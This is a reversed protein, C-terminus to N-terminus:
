VGGVYVIKNEEDIDISFQGHKSLVTISDTNRSQREALENLFNRFRQIDNEYFNSQLHGESARMLCEFMSLDLTIHSKKGDSTKVTLVVARQLWNVSHSLLDDSESLEWKQELSGISIDQPKITGALIGGNSMSRGFAPDLLELSASTRGPIRIGQIHRLGAVIKNKLKSEEEKELGLIASTFVQGYRFGLRLMSTELDGIGDFFARRRLVRVIKSTLESEQAREKKSAASILLDDVGQAADLIVYDRDRGFKIYFELDLEHSPFVDAENLLKEDLSRLAFQGPDIRKLGMLTKISSLQEDSLNEPKEFLLNYFIFQRAWGAKNKHKHVDKCSLGGTLLYATIMLMERITIVMDARELTKLLLNLNSVRTSSLPTKEHLMSHNFFMPCRDRSECSECVKWRRGDLWDKLAFKFLSDQSDESAVSQYNLNVVHIDNDKSCLGDDFSAEFREKIGQSLQGSAESTLAARLQGENACVITISTGDQLADELRNAAVDISLESFDKFIRLFERNSKKALPIKAIGDCQNNILSRAHDESSVGEPHDCLAEILRRCIHTKGHGADGTLVIANVSKNCASLVYNYATTEFEISDESSAHEEYIQDHGPDFPLYRKLRGVVPNVTTM